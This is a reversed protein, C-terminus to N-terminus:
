GLLGKGCFVNQGTVAPFACTHTIFNIIAVNGKAAETEPDQYQAHQSVTERVHSVTVSLYCLAM